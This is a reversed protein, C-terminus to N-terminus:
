CSSGCPQEAGESKGHSSSKGQTHALTDVVFGLPAGFVLVNKLNVRLKSFTWVHKLCLCFCRGILTYASAIFVFCSCIRFGCFQKSRMSSCCFLVFFITIYRAVLVRFPSRSMLSSFVHPLIGDGNLLGSWVNNIDILLRAWCNVCVETHMWVKCKPDCM